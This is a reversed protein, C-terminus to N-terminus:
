RKRRRATSANLKIKSSHLHRFIHEPIETFKALYSIPVRDLLEPFSARLQDYNDSGGDESSCDRAQEMSIWDKTLITSFQLGFQHYKEKLESVLSGPFRWLLGDELAEIGTGKVKAQHFLEELSVIFEDETKFRLTIQRGDKEIFLHFLGKEIFYLNDTITGYPQIIDHKRVPLPHINERLIQELAPPMRKYSKLIMLYREM